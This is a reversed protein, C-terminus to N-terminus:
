KLIFSFTLTGAQESPANMDASFRADLASKEAIDTLFESTTTSGKAGGVAKIVKGDNDVIISVVVKGAEQTNYAIYPKELLERGALKYDNAKPEGKTKTDDKDKVPTEENATILSKNFATLLEASPTNTAPIAVTIIENQHLLATASEMEIAAQAQQEMMAIEIISEQEQHSYTNTLSMFVFGVLVIAHFVLTGIIGKQRESKM